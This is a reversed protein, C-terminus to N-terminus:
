SDDSYLSVFSLSITGQTKDRTSIKTDSGWNTLEAKFYVGRFDLSREVEVSMRNCGLTIM